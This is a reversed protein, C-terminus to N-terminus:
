LRGHVVIGSHLGYAAHVVFHGDEPSRVLLCHSTCRVLEAAADAYAVLLRDPESETALTSLLRRFVEQETQDSVIAPPLQSRDPPPPAPVVDVRLRAKDVAAILTEAIEMDTTEPDLWFDPELLHELKIQEKVQETAVCCFVADPAAVVIQACAALREATLPTMSALVLAVPLRRAIDLAEAADSAPLLVARDALYDNARQLLEATLNSALVLLM